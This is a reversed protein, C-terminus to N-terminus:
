YDKHYLMNLFAEVMLPAEQTSRLNVVWGDNLIRCGQTLKLAMPQLFGLFSDVLLRTVDPREPQHFFEDYVKSLQAQLSPDYMPGKITWKATAM